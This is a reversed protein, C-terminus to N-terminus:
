VVLLDAGVGRVERNSWDDHHLEGPGLTARATLCTRVNLHTWLTTDGQAPEDVSVMSPSPWM